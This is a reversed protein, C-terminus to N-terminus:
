AFISTFDHKEQMKLIVNGNVHIPLKRHCLELMIQNHKTVYICPSASTMSLTRHRQTVIVDRMTILFICQYADRGCNSPFLFSHNVRTLPFNKNIYQVYNLIVVHLTNTRKEYELTFLFFM